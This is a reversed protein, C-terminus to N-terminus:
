PVFVFIPVVLTSPLTYVRYGRFIHTLPSFFQSQLTHTQNQWQPRVEETGNPVKTVYTPIMTM